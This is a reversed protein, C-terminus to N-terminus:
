RLQGDAQPASEGEGPVPRLPAELPTPAPAASTPPSGATPPTSEAQLPAPMGNSAQPISSGPTNPGVGPPFSGDVAGGYGAAGCASGAIGCGGPGCDRKGVCPFVSASPSNMWPAVYRHDQKVQRSGRPAEIIGELFLEFNDPKRTEEGPLIKPRQNCSEADVLWPTVVVIM